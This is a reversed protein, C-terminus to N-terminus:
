IRDLLRDIKKEIQDLRQNVANHTIRCTERWVVKDKLNDLDSDVRDFRQKVGLWTLVASMLGGAGAGAGISEIDMKYRKKRERKEMGTAPPSM